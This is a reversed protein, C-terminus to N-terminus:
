SHRLAEVPDMRAALVAPYVGFFAGALMAAAAPIVLSSATIAVPWGALASVAISAAIGIFLGAFAGAATLIAAEAVFQILIDRRTAGVARRVGIERTRETVSALMTNMIGIGGILLAVIAISATLVLFNRQAQEAQHLLEQPAIVQTDDVGHHAVSLIRRLAPLSPLVADAAHFEAVIESVTEDAPAFGSESGLPILIANDFDRMAVASGGAVANGMRTLVGVVRYISNEIRLAGGPHGERGLRRAAEEGIVCVPSRLRVDDDALSRGAILVFGHLRMFEPTVAAIIPQSRRGAEATGRLERLVGVSRIAPISAILRKGDSRTLGSSGQIRAERVQEAALGSARVLVNRMGLQGIRSLTDRRAGESVCMLLVFSVVGCVVGLASLAARLRHVLLSRVAQRVIRPARHM